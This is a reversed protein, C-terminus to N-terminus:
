SVTDVSHLYVLLNPVKLNDYFCDADDPVNIEPYKQNLENILFQGYTQQHQTHVYSQNAQHLFQDFNFM